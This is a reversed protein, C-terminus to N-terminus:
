EQNVVIEGNVLQIQAIDLTEASEQAMEGRTALDDMNPKGDCSAICSGDKDFIYYM